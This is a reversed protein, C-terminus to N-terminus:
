ARDEQAVITTTLTQTTTENNVLQLTCQSRPLAVQPLWLGSEGDPAFGSQGNVGQVSFVGTAVQDTNDLINWVSKGATPGTTTGMLRITGTYLPLVFSLVQAATMSNSQGALINASINMTAATFGPFVPAVPGQGITHWYERTYIRSTQLVTYSLTSDVTGSYNTLVVVLRDGKTPGRGHVFHANLNGVYFYYLEDDIRAGTASDFWQLEASLVPATAGLTAVNFWIEYGPQNLTFRGSAPRTISSAHPLSQGVLQDIVQKFVLLPAGTTSIATAHAQPATWDPFDVTM